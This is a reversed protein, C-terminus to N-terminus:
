PELQSLRGTYLHEICEEASMDAPNTGPVGEPVPEGLRAFLETWYEPMSGDAARFNMPRATFLPEGDTRRFCEYILESCYMRGNDPMFWYDYPQGIFHRSRAIADAIIRSRGDIDGRLRYVCVPSRDGADIRRRTVGDSAAEIIFCEGGCVEVMAVHTFPMRGEGATSQRIADEMASTDDAFFLLDGSCVRFGGGAATCPNGCQRSRLAFAAAATLVLLAAIYKTVSKM